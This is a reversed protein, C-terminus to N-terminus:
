LEITVGKSAAGADNPYITDYDFHDKLDQNDWIKNEDSRYNFILTAHGQKAKLVRAVTEQDPHDHSSGNTSFLYRSTKIKKLLDLSVNAKSGHHPVHLADVEVPEGPSLKELSKLLVSSRADGSVLIRRGDHEILMAISSGNAPKSDEDYDSAALAEVEAITPTEPPPQQGGLRELGGVPQPPEDEVPEDPNLDEETVIDSWPDKLALLEDPSPSLVSIKMKGPLTREVPAHDVAVKVARGHFDQNWSVGPSSLQTTLREGQVLGLSELGSEDLHRFGNFWVDRAKVHIDEKEFLKLVGAIHDNDVHSVVVLEFAGVNNDFAKEMIADTTGATGGDLLLRRPRHADGYEVIMSDGNTAPLLHVDFM